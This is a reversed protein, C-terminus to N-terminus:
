VVSGCRRKQRCGNVRNGQIPGPGSPDKPLLHPPLTPGQIVGTDDGDGGFSTIFSFEEPRDPSRSKSRSTSRGKDYPEYKPSERAAYAPPSAPRDKLRREKFARRERRSKRGSFQAKEEEMIKALRLAEAEDKDVELNYYFDNGEMGYKLSAQNLLAIEDLSLNYIDVINDLDVEEFDSDGDEDNAATKANAKNDDVPTTSDEYTFGIAAKNEANKKKDDNKRTTLSGYLEDLYIQKLCLDESVGAVDNQVLIRYREYNCRREEETDAEPIETNASDPEVYYDLHSRVDFRDIIINEDGRWPMMTQPGEAALAVSPEWHIKCQRGYIRVFQAPDQKIQEYFQRRRDARRKYDVMMVRIKREQKRAEHWM